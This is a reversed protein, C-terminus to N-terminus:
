TTPNFAPFVRLWDDFEQLISKFLLTECFREMKHHSPVGKDLTMGTPAPRAATRLDMLLINEQFKLAKQEDEVLAKLKKPLKNFDISKELCVMNIFDTFSGYKNLFDKAGKEGIGGVGSGKGLDGDDGALAKVEVFQRSTAVGTFEEFNKHTVTRKNIFDHWTVNPGVLQLWDKDGTMLKVTEGRATFKDTFIAALDDAEMNAASIQPVGIYGLAQKIYPVQKRYADKAAAQKIQYLKEVVDRHEKYDSRIQHRWSLGDWLIIVNYHQHLAYVQRLTRLFNYIAQVQLEGISLKKGSNAFYGLSNGDIILHHKKM